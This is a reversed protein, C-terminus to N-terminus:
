KCIQGVGSGSVLDIQSGSTDYIFRAAKGTGYSLAASGAALVIATGWGIPNSVLYLGVVAGIGVGTATSAITEVFIENKEHSNQAKAIQMCSATVGVGVLAIGGAKGLGALRNLKNANLTINSTAPIGGSRAIRISEHTTNKGFIWKEFPGINKKLKDLSVKRRYDYQGKSIRGSKYDAYHDSVANILGINGASLLNENASMAIGGPITLYNSSQALWSLAWFNEMDQANVQPTVFKIPPKPPPTKSVSPSIDLRLIDGTKILDPNTIHPNISLIYNEKDSYKNDNMRYGFMKFIINSLTDGAKIKYEFTKVNYSM